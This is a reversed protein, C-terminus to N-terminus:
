AHADALRHEACLAMMMNEDGITWGDDARLVPVNIEGDTVVDPTWEHDDGVFRHADCSECELGNGTRLKDLAQFLARANKAAHDTRQTEGMYRNSFDQWAPAASAFYHGLIWGETSPRGAGVDRLNVYATVFREAGYGRDAVFLMIPADAAVRVLHYIRRVGLINALSEPTLKM